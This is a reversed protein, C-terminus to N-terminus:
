KNNYEIKLKEELEFIWKWKPDDRITHKKNEWTAHEDPTKLIINRPDLRLGPAISKPVIHSMFWVSMEEGLHQGSIQSRHDREAWIKQFIELEGTRKKRHLIPKRKKHALPKVKKYGERKQSSSLQKQQLKSHVRKISSKSFGKTSNEGRKGNRVKRLFIGSGKQVEGAGKSKGKREDNGIKCHGSKVVILRQKNHCVCLGYHPHFM